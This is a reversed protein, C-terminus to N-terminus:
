MLMNYEGQMREWVNKIVTTWGIVVNPSFTTQDAVCAKHCPSAIFTNLRNNYCGWHKCTVNVTLAKTQEYSVSFFSPSPLDTTTKRILGQLNQHTFWIHLERLDLSIDHKAVKGSWHCHLPFKIATVLGATKPAFFPTRHQGRWNLFCKRQAM